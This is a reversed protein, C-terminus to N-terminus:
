DRRTLFLRYLNSSPAKERANRRGELEGSFWLNRTQWQMAKNGTTWKMFVWHNLSGISWKGEDTDDCEWLTDKFLCRNAHDVNYEKCTSAFFRYEITYPTYNFIISFQNSWSIFWSIISHPTSRIILSGLFCVTFHLISQNVPYSPPQCIVSM